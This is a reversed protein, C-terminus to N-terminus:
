YPLLSFANEELRKNESILKRLEEELQANRREVTLVRQEAAECKSMTDSVIQAVDVEGLVTGAKRRLRDDKITTSSTFQCLLPFIFLVVPRPKPCSRIAELLALAIEVDSDIKGDGGKSNVGSKTIIHEFSVEALSLLFTSEPDCTCMGELCAQFVQLGDECDGKWTWQKATEVSANAGRSLVAALDAHKRKPMSTVCSNMIELIDSTHPAYGCSNDNNQPSLLTALMLIVQEWVTDLDLVSDSSESGPVSEDGVAEGMTEDEATEDEDSGSLTELSSLALIGGKVLPVFLSYSSKWKQQNTSAREGDEHELNFLLVVLFLVNAKATDPIGNKMIADAVAKSAELELVEPGVAVDSDQSKGRSNKIKAANRLFFTKGGMKALTEFAESSSSSVMTCLLELGMRQPQTLYLAEPDGAGKEIVLHVHDVFHSEFESNESNLMDEEDDDNVQASRPAMENHKCCEYLKALGQMLKTLVQFLAPETFSWSDSPDDDFSLGGSGLFGRFDELTRFSSLFLRQRRREAKPSVNTPLAQQQSASARVTRLAGNIVQMNTGVTAPTTAAEIGAQCSLQACLVVMNVGALRLEAADRGGIQTAYKLAMQLIKIWASEFWEVNDEDDDTISTALLRSFFQRLVRELGRFSLVATTAWQKEVSDRSHHISVKYRSGSAKRANGSDNGIEPITEGKASVEDLVGFITEVLCARWQEETFQNGVGVICSFLTNVSCNRVEARSDSSLYALKSLVHDLSSPTPAQDAITWLMGTATLSTNVDHTSSGFSACCDLLATRTSASSPDPPSPLEDLFDDVILKLCRFALTSCSSWKSRDIVPRDNVAADDGSLTSIADILVPWADGSINHGAGELVVHLANLGAEATDQLPTTMITECLPMVLGAQSIDTVALDGDVTTTDGNLATVRLYDAPNQPNTLIISPIMGFASTNMKHSGSLRYTILGALTDMAYSRVDPSQSVSALECFHTIVAKGFLAFRFSNAMTVDTLAVLSFPLTQFVEKRTTPKRSALRSYVENSLDELFTKQRQRSLSGIESSDQDTLVAPGGGGFARGAFNMLKGGISPERVDSTNGDSMDYDESMDTEMSVSTGLIYTEPVPPPQVGTDNRRDISSNSIEVLASIFCSLSKDSLCTTFASLRSYSQAVVQALELGAPSLKPSSVPLSSLHEMTSLVLLWDDLIFDYYNHVIKLIACLAEIHQDHLQRSNSNPTKAPLSLKCLSSLLAMRQREGPQVLPFCVSALRVYGGLARRLIRRSGPLRKLIHQLVALSPGFSLDVLSKRVLEDPQQSISRTLSLPSNFAIWIPEGIHCPPMAQMSGDNGGAVVMNNTSSSKADSPYQIMMTEDSTAWDDHLKTFARAKSFMRPQITFMSGDNDNTVDESPAPSIDPIINNNNDDKDTATSGDEATSTAAATANNAMEVLALINGQCSAGITCFDSMAEALVAILRSSSEEVIPTTTTTPPPPPPIDTNQSREEMQHLDVLVSFHDQILCYLSELSLAARWLIPAPIWDESSSEGSSHHQGDSSSAHNNNNNNYNSRVSSKRKGEMKHRAQDSQKELSVKTSYVHGDEFHETDRYRETAITVFQILLLVLERRCEMEEKSDDSDSDSYNSTPQTTVLITTALQFSWLILAFSSPSPSSSDLMNANTNTLILEAQLTQMVLPYAKTYLLRTLDHGVGNHNNTGEEQAHTLSFVLAANNQRIMRDLLEMCASRPPWPHSHAATAFPGKRKEEEAGGLLTTTTTPRPEALWCLDLFTKAALDTEVVPMLLSADEELTADMDSGTMKTISNNNSNCRDLVISIIQKLTCAAARRVTEAPGGGASKKHKASALVSSAMNVSSSSSASQGTSALMLCIVFSQSLSELTLDLSRSDVLRLLTELIQLAIAEDEKVSRVSPGISGFSRKNHVVASNNQNAGGDPGNVDHHNGNFGVHAHNNNTNHNHNHNHNNSSSSFLYDTMTQTTAAVITTAATGVREQSKSDVYSLHSHTVQAQIQLIRHIHVVDSPVIADGECLLQIAMCSKRMLSGSVNPYNAALLFPRLVDQSRLIATTPHKAVAAARRVAAVYRTQLRRLELIGRESAEKVGPHKRRAETGLDRLHAEVQAIFNM